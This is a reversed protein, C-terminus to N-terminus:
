RRRRRETIPNIEQPVGEPPVDSWHCIRAVAGPAHWRMDTYPAIRTYGRDELLEDLEKELDHVYHSSIRLRSAITAVNVNKGLLRRVKLMNELKQCERAASEYCVGGRGEWEARARGIRERIRAVIDGTGYRIDIDVRLIPLHEPGETVAMMTGGIRPAGSFPRDALYGPDVNPTPAWPLDWREAFSRAVEVNHMNDQDIQELEKQSYKDPHSYIGTDHPRLEDRFKAADEYFGPSLRVIEDKVEVIRRILEAEKPSAADIYQPTEM